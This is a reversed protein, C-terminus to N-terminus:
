LDLVKSLIEALVDMANFMEELSNTQAGAEILMTKPMLHLNYRYSKLYIRRSFGPYFEEAAVQMQFTLALNDDIYPNYLYDIDGTSLTSSLGNFFMIQATPEGDIMTVLQTHDLVGDRHLDIVFEISPNEELIASVGEYALEYANSRDLVGNVLDYVGEHHLVEVGYEETLVEALYAGVGVITTSLDGEVSDIFEEQSHTHYILIQPGEVDEELSLDYELWEEMNFLDEDVSVTKDVVYYNSLVYDFDTLLEMDLTTVYDETTPLIVVEEGVLEGEEDISNEDMAQALLIWEETTTDEAMELVESNESYYKLIPVLNQVQEVIWEDKQSDLDKVLAMQPVFAYEVQEGVWAVSDLNWNVLYGIGHKRIYMIGSICMIIILAIAVVTNRRYDLHRLRFYRWRREM